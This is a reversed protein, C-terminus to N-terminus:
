RLALSFALVVAYALAALLATGLALRPLLYRWFVPWMQAPRAREWIGATAFAPRACNAAYWRALHKREPLPDLGLMKLRAVMVTWFADALCYAEGTIFNREALLADLEDLRNSVAARLRAIHERDVMHSQFERMDELKARYADRPETGRRIHSELKRLRLANIRHAIRGASGYSLDRVSISAFRELWRNMEARADPDSPTLAPGEFREDVFRAIAPSDCVVEGDVKLTPVVGDPNMRMYEPRYNHFLPPGAVVWRDRWPVGKEALVARVAQSYFSPPMHYLEVESM